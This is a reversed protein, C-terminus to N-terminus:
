GGRGCAEDESAGIRIKVGAVPRGTKRRVVQVILTGFLYHDTLERFSGDFEFVIL